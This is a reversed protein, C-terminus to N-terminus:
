AVNVLFDVGIQAMCLGYMSTKITPAFLPDQQKIRTEGNPSTLRIGVGFFTPLGKNVSHYLNQGCFVGTKNEEAPSFGCVELALHHVLVFM